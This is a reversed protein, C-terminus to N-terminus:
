ELLNKKHGPEKDFENTITEANRRDTNQRVDM